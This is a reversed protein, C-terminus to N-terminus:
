RDFNTSNGRRHPQGKGDPFDSWVASSENNPATVSLPSQNTVNM